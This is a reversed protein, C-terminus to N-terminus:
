NPVGACQQPSQWKEVDKGADTVKLRLLGELLHSTTNRQPQLRHKQITTLCRKLWRNVLVTDKRTWVPKDVKLLIKQQQLLEKYM